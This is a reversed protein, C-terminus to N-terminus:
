PHNIALPKYEDTIFLDVTSGSVWVGFMGYPAGEPVGYYYETRYTLSTIPTILLDSNM